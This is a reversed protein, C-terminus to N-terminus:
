ALDYKKSEFYQVGHKLRDIQEKKIKRNETLDDKSSEQKNVSGAYTKLVTACILIFFVLFKM